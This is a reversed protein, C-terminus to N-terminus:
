HKQTDLNAKNAKNKRQESFPALLSAFWVDASLSTTHVQM